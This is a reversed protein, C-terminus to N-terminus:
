LNSDYSEFVTFRSSNITEIENDSIARIKTQIISYNFATKMKVRGAEFCFFTWAGVGLFCPM